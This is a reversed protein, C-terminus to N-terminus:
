VRGQLLKRRRDLRAPDALLRMLLHLLFEAEIVELAPRPCPKVPVRQHGQNCKGEQLMLAECGRPPSFLIRPGGGWGLRGAIRAAMMRCM